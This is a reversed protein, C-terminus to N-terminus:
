LQNFTKFTSVILALHKRYIETSAEPAKMYDMLSYALRETSWHCHQQCPAIGFIQM